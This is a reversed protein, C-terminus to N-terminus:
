EHSKIKQTSQKNHITTALRMIPKIDRNPRQNAYRGDIKDDKLGFWKGDYHWLIALMSSEIKVLWIEHDTPSGQNGALCSSSPEENTDAFNGSNLIVHCQDLIKRVISETDGAAFATTLQDWASDDSLWNSVTRSTVNTSQKRIEEIADALTVPGIRDLISMPRGADLENKAQRIARDRVMNM